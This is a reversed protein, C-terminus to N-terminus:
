KPLIENDDASYVPVEDAAERGRPVAVPIPVDGGGFQCHEFWKM